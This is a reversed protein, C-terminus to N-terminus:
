KTVTVKKIIRPNDPNYGKLICLYYSFLQILVTLSLIRSLGNSSFEVNKKVFDKMEPIDCFSYVDIKQENLKAATQLLDERTEDNIGLLFVPIESNIMAIPGHMFDSTSFGKARVYSTEQIKLAFELAIPYTLGRGLVFCENMYRFREVFLKIENEKDLAEKVVNEVQQLKKLEEDSKSLLCALMGLLLLEASFTKTAAVAKEVGVNMYISFDAVKALRSQPNNTLSVCLAGCEKAMEFFSCVDESMGSQSVAIVCAKDLKLKRAYISAVSPAALSVPIGAFIEIAYKGFTAANDSSGRAVFVIFEIGREFIGKAVKELVELNAEYCTKLVQSQEQIESYM